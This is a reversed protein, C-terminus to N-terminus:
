SIPDQQNVLDHRKTKPLLLVERGIIVRGAEKSQFVRAIGPNAVQEAIRIAKARQGRLIGAGPQRGVLDDIVM